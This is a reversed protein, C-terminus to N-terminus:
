WTTAATSNSMPLASALGSALKEVENVAEQIRYVLDRLEEVSCTFELDEIKGAPTQLKIQVFYLPEHISGATSSRLVYDLRWNVDVVHAFDFSAKELVARVKQSARVWHLESEACQAISEVLAHPLTVLQALTERPLEELEGAFALVGGAM